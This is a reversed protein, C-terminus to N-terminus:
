RTWRRRNAQTALQFIGYCIMLIVFPFLLADSTVMERLARMLVLPSFQVVVAALSILLLTAAARKRLVLFIAGVLGSTVAVGYAAISWKPTAAWIARQDLPLSMPDATVQSVFMACGILEWALAAITAARFWGPVAPLAGTQM